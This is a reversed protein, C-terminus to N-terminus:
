KEYGTLQEFYGGKENIKFAPSAANGVHMTKTYRSKKMELYAYPETLEPRVINFVQDCARKLGGSGLVDGDRNLQATNLSWLKWRKCAAAEWQAVRGLFDARDGEGGGVLQWYDLIFGKIQYKAVATAVVQKLAEFTLFPDDYYILCEKENSSAHGLDSWFNDGRKSKDFFSRGDIGLDKAIIRQHTENEGMEACIYLHPIDQAKLNASITTAMLTKGHGSDAPMAYMRGQMLGGGMAFDLRSLGTSYVPPDEALTHLINGSVERATRIKSGLASRNIDDMAIVMAAMAEENSSASLMYNATETIKRRTAASKVKAALHEGETARAACSILSSLYKNDVKDKLTVPSVIRGTVGGDLIERWIEKHLPEYFDESALPLILAAQNNMLALGLLAQEHELNSYIDQKPHTLITSM